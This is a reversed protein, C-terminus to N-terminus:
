ESNEIVWFAADQTVEDCGGATDEFTDFDRTDEDHFSGQKKLHEIVRLTFLQWQLSRRKGTVMVAKEGLVTDIEGDDGTEPNCLYHHCDMLISNVNGVLGDGVAKKWSTKYATRTELAIVRNDMEAATLLKEVPASLEKVKAEALALQARHHEAIAKWEDLSSTSTMKATNFLISWVTSSTAEIKVAIFFSLFYRGRLWSYQAYEARQSVRRAGPLCPGQFLLDSV